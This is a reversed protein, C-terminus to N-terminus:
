CLPCFVDYRLPSLVLCPLVCSMALVLCSFSLALSSFVLCPLVFSPIALYPLVLGSLVTVLRLGYRYGVKCGRGEIVLMQLPDSKNKYKNEGKMMQFLLVIGSFEPFLPMNPMEFVVNEHIYGGFWPGKELWKLHSTKIDLSM